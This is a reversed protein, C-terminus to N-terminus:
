LHAKDRRRIEEHVAIGSLKFTRVRDVVAVAEVAIVVALYEEGPVHTGLLSPEDTRTDVNCSERIFDSDSVSDDDITRM